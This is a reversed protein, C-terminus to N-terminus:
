VVELWLENRRLFPTTMPSDYAAFTVSGQGVLGADVVLALFHLEHAHVNKSTFRGTFGLSAVHRAPQERLVVRADDPIPLSALTREPPMVFTVRYQGDNMQTFVPATMDLVEGTANSGYLYCALRGFGRDMATELDPADILVTAEVLARYERLQLGGTTAILQYDPVPSFWRAMQTRLAGLALAAAAGALIGRGRRGTERSVLLGAAVPAAVVAVDWALKRWTDAYKAHTVVAESSEDSAAITGTHVDGLHEAIQM